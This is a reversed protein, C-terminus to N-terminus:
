KERYAPPLPHPLPHRLNHPLSPSLPGALVHFHALPFGLPDARCGCTTGFAWSKCRGHTHIHLWLIRITQIDTISVAFYNAALQDQAVNRGTHCLFAPRCRRTLFREPPPFWVCARVGGGAREGGSFFFFARSALLVGRERFCEFCGGANGGAGGCGVVTIRPAFEMYNGQHFPLPSSSSSPSPTPTPTSDSDSSAHRLDPPFRPSAALDIHPSTATPPTPPTPKLRTPRIITFSRHFFRRFLQTLSM